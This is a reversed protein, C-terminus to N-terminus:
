DDRRVPPRGPRVPGISRRPELERLMTRFARDSLPRSIRYIRRWITFLLQRLTRAPLRRRVRDFTEYYMVLPVTHSGRRLSPQLYGFDLPLVHNRDKLNYLWPNDARVEGVVATLPAHRIQRADRGFRAVLHARLRPGIGHRRASAEVALYGIVGTNINGLYTGTTFGVVRHGLEAVVLHWRIDTWLRLERERLSHRWEALDVVEAPPFVQRLLAHGKGVAPDTSRLVERIRVRPNMGM